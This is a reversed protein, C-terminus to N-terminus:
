NTSQIKKVIARTLDRIEDRVHRYVVVPQGIPDAVNRDIGPAGAFEKYLFVKKDAELVAKTLFDKHIDSMVLIIDAREVLGSYFATSLYDSIDIGQESMVQVAAPTPALGDIASIGASTVEFGDERKLYKKLFGEAMPSRCANGTCIVLIKRIEGM